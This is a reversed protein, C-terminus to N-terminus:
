ARSARTPAPPAGDGYLHMSTGSARLELTASWEPAAMPTRAAVWGKQSQREGTLRVFNRHVVASGGVEFMTLDRMGTYASIEDFPAEFSQEEMVKFDKAVNPQGSALTAACISLLPRLRMGAQDSHADAV